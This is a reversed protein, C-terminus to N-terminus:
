EEVERVEVVNLFLFLAKILVKVNGEDATFLKEDGLYFDVFGTDDVEVGFWCIVGDDGKVVPITIRM